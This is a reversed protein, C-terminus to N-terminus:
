RLERARVRAVATVGYREVATRTVAFVLRADDTQADSYVYGSRLGEVKLQPVLDVVEDPPIHRHRSAPRTIGGLLDYLLLGTKLALAARRGRAAWGPADAIGHQRYLPIVFELPEFLYDAIRALVAQEHLGEAVLHFEFQPLYRIGGHFLKTSRGSTGSAFDSQEVLAVRLGRAGLDLAVGSGTIGGGVVLADFQSTEALSRLHSARTWAM